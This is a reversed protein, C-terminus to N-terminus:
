DETSTIGKERFDKDFIFRGGPLKEPTTGNKVPYLAGGKMWTVGLNNTLNYRERNEDRLQSCKEQNEKKYNEDTKCKELMDRDQQNGWTDSYDSRRIFCHVPIKLHDTIESALSTKVLWSGQTEDGDNAAGTRCAWSSFIAKKHFATPLWQRIRLGDLRYAPEIGKFPTYANLAELPKHTVKKFSYYLFPAGYGLAIQGLLGHSFADIRYILYESRDYGQGQNIYQMFDTEVGSPFTLLSINEVFYPAEQKIDDLSEQILKKHADTYYDPDGNMLALTIVVGSGPFVPLGNSDSLSKVHERIMRVAQAPFVLRNGKSGDYINAAIVIFELNKISIAQEVTHIVGDGSKKTTGTTKKSWDITDVM